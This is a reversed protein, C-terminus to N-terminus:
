RSDAQLAHRVNCVLCRWRGSKCVDAGGSAGPSLFVDQRRGRACYDYWSLDGPWLDAVGQPCRIM